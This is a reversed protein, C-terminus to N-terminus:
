APELYSAVLTKQGVSRFDVTVKPPFGARVDLVRGQGFVKHRVAMGPRIVGDAPYDVGDYDVDRAPPRPAQAAVPRQARSAGGLRILDDAPIEALFRSPIRLKLQGFVTRTRAHSLVLREEARTLAVYALRREEELEEPDDWPNLGRYPFGEEEMGLVMVTEFELGKAAHVTMLTLRDEGAEEEVNTDLTISELYEALSAEPRDREFIALSGVLEGLVQLRADAEPSDERELMARYGTKEILARGLEVLGHTAAIERLEDLLAAFEELKRHAASSFRREELARGLVDLVSGGERNAMEVLRDITTKGIGRTPKNIVRLLSVDDGSNILVRLYALVDKVEAREYFRLGGVVRYPLNARRLAEEVVRSQAHIRYFIAISALSVGAQRLEHVSKVVLAAEDQEDHTAVVVIKRGEDNETFLRKPERDYARSIIENAARLIRATSRYNQELKVVHAEPFTHRFDLINRWDAGRWGYISQDDDGVVCVNRHRAALARVVRLQAHNTDQFEDVLIQDYRGAVLERFTENTELGLVMRYILDGFDLANAARMRDEYVAYVQKAVRSAPDDGAMEHPGRVDQKERNIRGAIAKPPHRKEDIDLERLIRKIMSQQDADDYITFQSSLGLHEGHLRLLRACTAHFTGVWLDDAVPGVLKRLREKMEGAAKNTFTVALVRYPRVLGEEVLRAIRYTIVRTKGSGAGAFVVLPGTDHLVAERQPPNLSDLSIV